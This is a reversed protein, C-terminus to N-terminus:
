LNQMHHELAFNELRKYYLLLIKGFAETKSVSQNATGRLKFLGKDASLKM